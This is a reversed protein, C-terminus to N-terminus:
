LVRFIISKFISLIDDIFFEQNKNFFQFLFHCLLLPFVFVTKRGGGQCTLHGTILSCLLISCVRASSNRFLIDSHLHQM